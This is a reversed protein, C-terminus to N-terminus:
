INMVLANLRRFMITKCYLQHRRRDAEIVRTCCIADVEVYEGVLKRYHTGDFVDSISGPTSKYSARYDMLHIMQPSQFLGQLRPVLPFYMFQRRPKRNPKFRPQHCHPCVLLQRYKGAYLICSDPCCDYKVTTVAALCAVRKFIVYESDLNIKHRFSWRMQKFATQAIRGRVPLNFARINDRDSDSLIDNRIEFFEEAVKRKETCELTDMLEEMSWLEEDSDRDEVWDWPGFEEDQVVSPEVHSSSSSSRDDNDDSIDPDPSSSDAISDGNDSLSIQSRPHLPMM